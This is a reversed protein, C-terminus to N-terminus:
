HTSVESTSMKLRKSDVVQGPLGSYDWGGAATGVGRMILSVRSCINAIGCVHSVVYIEWFGASSLKKVVKSESGADQVEKGGQM